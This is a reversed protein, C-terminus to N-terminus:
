PRLSSSARIASKNSFEGSEKQELGGARLTITGTDSERRIWLKLFRAKLVPYNVGHGAYRENMIGVLAKASNVGVEIMAHLEAKTKEALHTILAVEGHHALIQGPYHFVVFTCTCTSPLMRSM